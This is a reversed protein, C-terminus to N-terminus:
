LTVIALGTISVADTNTYEVLISDGNIIETVDEVLLNFDGKPVIYKIISDFTTGHTSKQTISLVDRSTPATAFNLTISKLYFNDGENITWSIAGTTAELKSERYSQSM